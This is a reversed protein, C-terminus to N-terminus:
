SWLRALQVVSHAWGAEARRAWSIARMEQVQERNKSWRLLLAAIEEDAADPAFLQAAEAIVHDPSGGVDPGIVALGLAHFERLCMGGAEAHSLLCGVDNDAVADLYARPQRQKDIFGLWEVGEVHRLEPQLRERTCGIVRLQCAAGQARALQMARILRDLGKRRADKGVFVLRLPRSSDLAPIRHEAEWASYSDADLNAGPVVVHVKSAPIDYGHILSQAAWRSHTVIGTAQQYGERERAIADQQAWRGINDGLGYDAFLPPLTQDIYYWKEIRVDAVVSPPFLQFCNLIRTGALSSGLPQWLRELCPVSYQYGGHGRAHLMTGLNWLYRQVNRFRGLPELALGRDIVGRPRALQLLHYPTGSWTAVANADGVAALLTPRATM